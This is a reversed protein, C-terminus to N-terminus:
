ILGKIKREGSKGKFEHVRRGALVHKARAHIATHEKTTLRGSVWSETAHRMSSRAQEKILHKESPPKDSSLEGHQQGPETVSKEGRSPKARKKDQKNAVAGSPFVAALMPMVKAM